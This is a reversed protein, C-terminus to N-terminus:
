YSIKSSHIYYATGEIGNLNPSVDILWFTLFM